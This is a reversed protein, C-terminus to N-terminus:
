CTDTASLAEIRDYNAIDEAFVERILLDLGSGALLKRNVRPLHALPFRELPLGDDLFALADPAPLDSKPRHHASTFAHRAAASPDLSFESELRTIARDFDELRYHSICIHRHLPTCQPTHHPDLSNFDQEKLWLLYDRFSVPHNLDSNDGQIFNLAAQRVRIGPTITGQRALMLFRGNNLMMYSSFAREFPCRMFSVVPKGRRLDEALDDIYGPRAKLVSNEYGHIRLSMDSPKFQTAEELLEAHHLFWKLAATCGAKQSWCLIFPVNAHNLPTRRKLLPALPTARDDHAAM